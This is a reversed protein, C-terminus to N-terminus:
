TFLREMSGCDALSLRGCVRAVTAQRSQRVCRQANEERFTGLKNMLGTIVSGQTQPPAKQFAGWALKVHKNKSDLMETEIAELKRLALYEYIM